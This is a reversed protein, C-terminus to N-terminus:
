PLVDILSLDVIYRGPLVLIVNVFYLSKLFRELIECIYYFFCLLIILLIIFSLSNINELEGSYKIFKM